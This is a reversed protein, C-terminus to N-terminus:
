LLLINFSLKVMLFLCMLHLLTIFIHKTNTFYNYYNYIITQGCKTIIYLYEAERREVVICVYGETLHGRLEQLIPLICIEHGGFTIYYVPFWELNINRGLM